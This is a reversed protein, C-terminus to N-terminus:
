LTNFDAVQEIFLEALVDFPQLGALVYNLGSKSRNAVPFIDAPQAM